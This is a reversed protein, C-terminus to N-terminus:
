ENPAESNLQARGMRAIMEFQTELVDFHEDESPLIAAFLDRGVFDRMDEYHAIAEKLRPGSDGKM